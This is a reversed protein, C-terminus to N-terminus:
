LLLFLTRFGAGFRNEAPGDIENPHTPAAAAIQAAAYEVSGSVSDLAVCSAACRPSVSSPSFATSTPKQSSSADLGRSCCTRTISQPTYM